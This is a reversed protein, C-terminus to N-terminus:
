GKTLLWVVITVISPIGIALAGGVVGWWFATKGMQDVKNDMDNRLKVVEITLSVVEEKTAEQGKTLRDLELLVHKSWENWGNPNDSM